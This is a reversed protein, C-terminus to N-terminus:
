HVRSVHLRDVNPLDLSAAPESDICSSSTGPDYLAEHADQPLALDSNPNTRRYQADIGINVNLSPGNRQLLAAVEIKESKPGCQIELRFLSTFLPYLCHCQGEGVKRIM